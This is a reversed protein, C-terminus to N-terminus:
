NGEIVKGLRVFPLSLRVFVVHASTLVFKESILAGAGVFGKEPFMVQVMHPLEGISIKSSKENYSTLNPTLREKLDVLKQCSQSLNSSNLANKHIVPCCFVGVSGDFDCSTLDSFDGLNLLDTLYECKTIPKCNGILGLKTMCPLSGFSAEFIAVFIIVFKMVFCFSRSKVLVSYKCSFSFFEKPIMFILKIEEGILRIFVGSSDFRISNEAFMKM